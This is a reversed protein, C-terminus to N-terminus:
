LAQISREVPSDMKFISQMGVSSISFFAILKQHLIPALVPWFVRVQDHDGKWDPQKPCYFVSRDKTSSNGITKTTDDLDM